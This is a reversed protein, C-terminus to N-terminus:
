GTTSSSPPRRPRPSARHRRHDRARLAEEQHGRVHPHTPASGCRYRLLQGASSEHDGRRSRARLRVGRRPRLDRRVGHCRGCCVSESRCAGARRAAADYRAAGRSRHGRARRRNGPWGLGQSVALRAHERDHHRRLRSVRLRAGRGGRRRCDRRHGSQRGTNWLFVRGTHVVGVLARSVGFLSPIVGQTDMARVTYAVATRHDPRSTTLRPRRIWITSQNNVSVDVDLGLRAFMEIPVSM